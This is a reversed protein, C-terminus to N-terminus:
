ILRAIFSSLAFQVLPLGLNISRCATEAARVECRASRFRLASICTTDRCVRHKNESIKNKVAMRRPVDRALHIATSVYEDITSAITETVGMMKLIAATHRGRM